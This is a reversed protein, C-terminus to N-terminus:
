DDNLITGVDRIKRDGSITLSITKTTEDPAPYSANLIISIRGVVDAPPFNAQRYPGV